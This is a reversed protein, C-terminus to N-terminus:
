VLAFAILGPEFVGVALVGRAHATDVGLARHGVEVVVGLISGGTALGPVCQAVELRLLSRPDHVAVPRPAAVINIRRLPDDPEVRAADVPARQACVTHFTGVDHLHARLDCGPSKPEFAGEVRQNPRSEPAIQVCVAWNATPRLPDGSRVVTANFRDNAILEEKGETRCM